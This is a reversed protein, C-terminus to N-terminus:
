TANSARTIQHYSINELMAARASLQQQGQANEAVPTALSVGLILWLYATQYALTM